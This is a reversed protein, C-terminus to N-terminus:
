RDSDPGVAPSADTEVAPRGEVLGSFANAVVFPRDTGVLAGAMAEVAAGETRDSGAPDAWDHKNALHVVADAGAAGRRLSDLDDLDGRLVQAGKGDLAAASADSRALGVVQHGAALLDDTTASGIWGSAGTIFVRM